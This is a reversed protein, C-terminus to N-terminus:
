DDKKYMIGYSGGNVGFFKRPIYGTLVIKVRVKGERIDETVIKLNTGPRTSVPFM